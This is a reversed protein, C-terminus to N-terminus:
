VLVRCFFYKKLVCKQRTDPRQWEAIKKLVIKGLANTNCEAFYVKIKKFDIKGLAGPVPV